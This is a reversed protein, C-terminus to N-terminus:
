PPGVRYMLVSGLYSRRRGAVLGPDIIPDSSSFHSEDTGVASLDSDLWQWLRERDRSLLVEIEDLNCGLGVGRDTPDHIVALPLVLLRLAM